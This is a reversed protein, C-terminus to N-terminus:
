GFQLDMSDAYNREFVTSTFLALRARAAISCRAISIFEASYGVSKLNFLLKPPFVFRPGRTLKQQSDRELKLISTPPTIFSSIFALSNALINYFLILSAYVLNKIM